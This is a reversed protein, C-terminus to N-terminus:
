LFPWVALGHPANRVDNGFNITKIREARDVDFVSVTSPSSGGILIGPRTPDGDWTTLGRAFNPRAVDSPLNMNTLTAPDHMHIGVAARITGDRSAFCVHEQGTSNYIIGDRWPRANHTWTPIRAYPTVRGTSLAFLIPLRVGSAYIVDGMRSVSNIHTTDGKHPGGSVNPDFARVTIHEPRIPTSPPVDVLVRIAVGSVFRGAVLDYELISDFATSTLLLRDGDVWIEHCLGLYDNRVSGLRNFSQDFFFVEDSAAIIIRDRWFGIGRLGRDGGRGEWDIGGANWDLKKQVEETELDVLYVGGHSDGQHTSRIVDTILVKPLPTPM